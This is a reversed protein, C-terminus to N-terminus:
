RRRLYVPSKKRVHNEFKIKDLAAVRDWVYPPCEMGLEEEILRALCSWGINRKCVVLSARGLWTRWHFLRKDLYVRLENHWGEAGCTHFPHAHHWINTQCLTLVACITHYVLCNGTCGREMCKPPCMCKSSCVKPNCTRSCKSADYYFKSSSHKTKTETRYDCYSLDDATMVDGNDVDEEDEDEDEDDYDYAIDNEVAQRKKEIVAQRALRRQAEDRIFLCPCSHMYSM